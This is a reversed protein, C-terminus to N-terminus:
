LKALYLLTRLAQSRPLFPVKDLEAVLLRLQEPSIDTAPTPADPPQAETAGAWSASEEEWIGDLDQM